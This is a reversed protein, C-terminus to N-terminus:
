MIAKLMLYIWHALKESKYVDDHIGFDSYFHKVPLNRQKLYELVADSQSVPVLEDSTSHIIRIDSLGSFPPALEFKSPDNFKPSTSSLPFAETYSAKSIFAEDVFSSYSPYQGLLQVTDYIGELCYARDIQVYEKVDKYLDQLAEKSIPLESENLLEFESEIIQIYNLLQLILSAGVSHGVLILPKSKHNLTKVIHVLATLVDLLHVPHKVTPSLRYNIGIVNTYWQERLYKAMVDFDDFTNRPDRWAGGHLYVITDGHDKVYEENYYFIKFKQLPDEGYSVSENERITTGNSLCENEKLSM